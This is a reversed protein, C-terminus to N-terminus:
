LREDQPALKTMMLGTLTMAAAYIMALAGYLGDMTSDLNPFIMGFEHVLLANLLLSPLALSVAAEAEDGRAERLLKLMVFTIAVGLAVVAVFLLFPPAASPTFFDQGLLRFIAFNVVWLVFGLGMARIIM